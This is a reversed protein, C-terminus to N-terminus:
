NEGAKYAITRISESLGTVLQRLKPDKTATLMFENLTDGIQLPMCCPMCLAPCQPAPEPRRLLCM